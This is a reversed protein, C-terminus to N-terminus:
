SPLQRLWWLLLCCERPWCITQQQVSDCSLETMSSKIMKLCSDLFLRTPPVFLGYSVRLVTPPELPPSPAKIVDQPVANPNPAFSIKRFWYSEQHHSLAGKTRPNDLMEMSEKGIINTVKLVFCLTLVTNLYQMIVIFDNSTLSLFNFEYIEEWHKDPYYCYFRLLM